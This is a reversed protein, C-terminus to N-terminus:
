GTVSNCWLRKPGQKNLRMLKSEYGLAKLEIKLQKLKRSDDKAFGLVFDACTELSFPQGDLQNLFRSLSEAFSSEERYQLNRERILEAEPSGEVFWYPMNQQYMQVLGAWLDDRNAEAYAVDITKDLRVCHFRRNEFDRFLEDENTSGVLVFRRLLEVPEHAYPKLIVDKESTIFDKLESISKRSFMTDIESLNVLWHQHFIQLDHVESRQKKPEVFWSSEPLLAKFLTSKGLGQKGILVLVSDLKCGPKFARYVAGLLNILILKTNFDDPAFGFISAIHEAPPKAIQNPLSNLYMQIPCYSRNDIFWRMVYQREAIPLGYGFADAFLRRLSTYDIPKGDQELRDKLSNYALDAPSFALLHNIYTLTDAFERKARPQASAEQKIQGVIENLDLNDTIM